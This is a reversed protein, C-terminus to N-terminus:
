QAERSFGAIKQDMTTPDMPGTMTTVTGPMLARNPSGFLGSIGRVYGLVDAAFRTNGLLAKILPAIALGNQTAATGV